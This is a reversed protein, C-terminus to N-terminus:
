IGAVGLLQRAQLILDDRVPDPKTGCNMKIYGTLDRILKGISQLEEESIVRELREVTEILELVTRPDAISLYEALRVTESTDDDHDLAAVCASKIVPLAHM